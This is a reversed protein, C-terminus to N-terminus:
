VPEATGDGNVDYDGPYGGDPDEYPKKQGPDTYGQPTSDHVTYVTRPDGTVQLYPLWAM